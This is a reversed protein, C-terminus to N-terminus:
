DRRCERRQESYRSVLKLVSVLIAKWKLKHEAASNRERTGFLNEELFTGM